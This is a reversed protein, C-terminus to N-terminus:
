RKHLFYIGSFTFLKLVFYNFFFLFNVDFDFIKFLWLISIVQRKLEAIPEYLNWGNEVFQEKYEFAFFPFKHSAPFAYQQLKEAVTRRSHNEQFNNIM